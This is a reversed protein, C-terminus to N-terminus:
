AGHAQGGIRPSCLTFVNSYSLKSKLASRWETRAAQLHRNEASGTSVYKSYAASRSVSFWWKRSAMKQIAIPGLERLPASACLPHAFPAAGKDICGVAGLPLRARAFKGAARCRQAEAGRRRQAFWHDLRM